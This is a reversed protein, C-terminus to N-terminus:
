SHLRRASVQTDLSKLWCRLVHMRCLMRSRCQLMHSRTAPLGVLRLMSMLLKGIRETALRAKTCIQEYHLMTMDLVCRIARPYLVAPMSQLLAMWAVMAMSAVQLFLLCLVLPM